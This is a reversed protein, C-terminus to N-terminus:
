REPVRTLTLGGDANAAFIGLKLRNPGHLPHVPVIMRRNQWRGARREM